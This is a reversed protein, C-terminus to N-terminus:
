ASAIAIETNAVARNTKHRKRPSYNPAIAILRNTAGSNRNAPM